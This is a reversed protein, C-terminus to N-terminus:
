RRLCEYAGLIAETANRRGLEVDSLYPASFGLRRAVERLSLGESERRRRLEGAAPVFTEGRGRCHPCVRRELKM